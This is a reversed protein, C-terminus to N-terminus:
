PVTTSSVCNIWAKLVGEAIKPVVYVNGETREAKRISAVFQANVDPSSPLTVLLNSGQEVIEAKLWPFIGKPFGNSQPSGQLKAKKEPEFKASWGPFEELLRWLFELSRKVENSRPVHERLLYCAFDVNNLSIELKPLNKLKHKILNAVTICGFCEAQRSPVLGYSITADLLGPVSVLVTGSSESAVRVRLTGDRPQNDTTHAYGQPNESSLRAPEAQQRTESSDPFRFAVKGKEIVLAAKFPKGAKSVFGDLVETQGKELLSIAIEKSITKGSMEKWITACQCSYSKLMNKVETKCKPCLM